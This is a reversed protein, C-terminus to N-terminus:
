TAPAEDPPEVGSVQRETPLLRDALDSLDARVLVMRAFSVCFRVDMEWAAHARDRDSRAQQTERTDKALAELDSRLADRASAIDARAAALDLSQWDQKPAPLPPAEKTAQLFKDAATLLQDAATPTVGVLALRAVVPRGYGSDVAGTLDMLKQRLTTKSRDVNARADADEGTEKEVVEDAAGYIGLSKEVQGALARAAAELGLPKELEQDLKKGAPAVHTALASIVTRTLTSANEHQKSAM